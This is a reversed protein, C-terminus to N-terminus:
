AMAEVFYVAIAFPQTKQPLINPENPVQCLDEYFPSGGGKHMALLVKKVGNSYHNNYEITLFPITMNM